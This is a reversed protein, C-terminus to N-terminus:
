RICNAMPQFTEGSGRAITRSVDRNRPATSRSDNRKFVPSADALQLCALRSTRSATASMVPLIRAAVRQSAVAVRLKQRPALVILRRAEEDPTARAREIGVLLVRDPERSRPVDRPCSGTGVRILPLDAEDWEISRDRWRGAEITLRRGAPLRQRRVDWRAM